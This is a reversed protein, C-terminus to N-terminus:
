THYHVERHPTLAGPHTELSLAGLGVGPEQVYVTSLARRRRRRRRREPGRTRSRVARTLKTRRLRLVSLPSRGVRAREPAQRSRLDFLDPPSGRPATGAHRPRHKVRTFCNNFEVGSGSRPGRLSSQPAARLRATSPPWPLPARAADRGQRRAPGPAAPRRPPICGAEVVRPGHSGGLGGHGSGAPPPPEVPGPLLAPAKPQRSVPPGLGRSGPSVRPRTEAGGQVRQKGQREGEGEGVSPSRGAGPGPGPSRAGAVVPTQIATLHCTSAKGGELATKSKPSSVRDRVLAAKRRPGPRARTDSRVGVEPRQGPRGLPEASGGPSGRTRGPGGRPFM